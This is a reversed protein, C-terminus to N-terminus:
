FHMSCILPNLKVIILHTEAGRVLELRLEVCEVRRKKRQESQLAVFVFMVHIDRKLVRKAKLLFRRQM